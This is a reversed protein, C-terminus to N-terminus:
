KVGSSPCVNSRVSENISLDAYPEFARIREKLNKYATPAAATREATDIFYQEAEVPSWGCFQRLTVAAMYGSAHWGNWCHMLLRGPRRGELHDRVLTLLKRESSKYNLGVTPVVSQYALNRPQGSADQCDVRDKATAFNHRYLYVVDSFGQTCLQDLAWDQLPNQNDRVHGTAFSNNAGSRYYVGFLVPRLNRVGTLPAFGRGRDDVGKKYADRSTLEDQSVQAGATSGFPELIGACATVFVLPLVRRGTKM